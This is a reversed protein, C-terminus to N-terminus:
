RCNGGNQCWIRVSRQANTRIANQRAADTMGPAWVGWPSIAGLGEATYSQSTNANIETALEEARTQPVRGRPTNDLGHTGEHILLEARGNVDLRAVQRPDVNIMTFTKGGVRFTDAEGGAGRQVDNGFRVSVGNVEGPKGLFTLVAKIQDRENKPLDKNAAARQAAEYAAKMQACQEDTGNCAYTGTPDTYKLPNNRVYAYLNFNQPNSIFEQFKSREEDSGSQWDQWMLPDPSTFRGQAGSYYRVEFYDLGTEADREKGTFETNM